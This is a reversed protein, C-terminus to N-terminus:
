TGLVFVSERVSDVFRYDADLTAADPATLFV